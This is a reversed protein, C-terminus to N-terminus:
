GDHWLCSVEDNCSVEKNQSKCTFTREGVGYCVFAPENQEPSSLKLPDEEVM